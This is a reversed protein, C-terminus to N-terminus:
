GYEGRWQASLDLAASGLTLFSQWPEQWTTLVGVCKDSLANREHRIARLVGLTSSLNNSVGCLEKTLSASAAKEKRLEEALLNTKAQAKKERM